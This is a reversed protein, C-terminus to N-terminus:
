LVTINYTQTQGNCVGNSIRTITIIFVGSNVYEHTTIGNPRNTDITGDGWNVNYREPTQFGLRCVQVAVWGQTYTEGDIVNTDLNWVSCDARSLACLGFGDTSGAENDPLPTATVPYDAFGCECTVFVPSEVVTGDSLETRLVETGTKTISIINYANIGQGDIEVCVERSEIISCIGVEPCEIEESECDAVVWVVPDSIDIGADGVPDVGQYILSGTTSFTITYVTTGAIANTIGQVTIQDGVSAVGKIDILAEYCTIDETITGPPCAVPDEVPDVVDGIDGLTAYSDALTYQVFLDSPDAANTFETCNVVVVGENPDNYTACTVAAPNYIQDPTDCPVIRLGLKAYQEASFEKGAVIFTSYSYVGCDYWWLECVDIIKGPRTEASEKIKLSKVEGKVPPTKGRSIVCFCIKQSTLNCPAEGCPRFPAVPVVINNDIDTFITNVLVGNQFVDTQYFQLDNADVKCERETASYDTGTCERTQLLTTIPQLDPLTFFEGSIPNGDCDQIGKYVVEEGDLLAGQDGDVCLVTSFSENECTPCQQVFLPQECTTGATPQNCVAVLPVDKYSADCTSEDFVVEFEVNEVVIIDANQQAIELRLNLLDTKTYPGTLIIELTDTVGVPSTATCYGAPPFFPGVVYDANVTTPAIGAGNLTTAFLWDCDVGPDRDNQPTFTYRITVQDFMAGDCLEEVSDQSLSYHMGGYPSGDTDEYTFPTAPLTGATVYTTGDVSGLNWWDVGPNGFMSVGSVNIKGDTSNFIAPSPLSSGCDVTVPCTNIKAM